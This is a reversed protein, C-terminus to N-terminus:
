YVCVFEKTNGRLIYSYYVCVISTYISVSPIVERIRISIFTFLNEKPGIKVMM